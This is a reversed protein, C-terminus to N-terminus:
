HEAASGEDMGPVDDGRVVIPDDDHRARVSTTDSGGCRCAFLLLVSGAAAKRCFFEPEVNVAHAVRKSLCTQAVDVAGVLDSNRSIDRM